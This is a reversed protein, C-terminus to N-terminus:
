LKSNRRENKEKLLETTDIDSKSILDALKFYTVKNIIEKWTFDTYYNDLFKNIAPIVFRDGWSHHPFDERIKENVIEKCVKNVLQDFSEKGFKELFLQLENHLLSEIEEKLIKKTQGKILNKIYERLEQDKEITLEVKM